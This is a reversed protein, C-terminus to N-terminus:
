TGPLYVLLLQGREGVGSDVKLSPGQQHIKTKHAQVDLLWYGDGFFGSADVVGSSEWVGPGARDIAVNSPDVRAAPTLTGSALDYVHVRNYGSTTDNRDEQIVLAQTSIGLNDPNVIDDGNDGDLVVELSARRPHAPDYTLKYVRGHKTDAKNAGTDSLYVVGPNAPDPAADEIRVFNFSGLSEAVANLQLGNYREAHPITVFRGDLVEGKAIDNASPDGDGQDKPVWVTFRGRGRLAHTFTDAFYSYAQSRLRFSDESLYMVADSLGKVPAINEHNLAGFQPTEFVRGTVANIAVSMGGKPAGIWEEGTFYWPVGRITDMTSSCFYQYGETGDIAYGAAVVKGQLNLSLHSVRADSADGWEYATEHSVFVELRSVSSRYVGIGDPVGTLQFGGLRGGILEGANIIPTIDVGPELGVLM